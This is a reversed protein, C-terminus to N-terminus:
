FSFVGLGAIVLPAYVLNDAFVALLFSATLFFEPQQQFWFIFKVFMDIVDYNARTAKL